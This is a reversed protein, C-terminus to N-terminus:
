SFLFKKWKKGGKLKDKHIISKMLFDNASRSAIAGESSAVVVQNLPTGTVDGAAYCGKVSTQMNEDVIISGEENLKLKLKDAFKTIPVGGM